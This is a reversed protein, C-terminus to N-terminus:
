RHRREAADLLPLQIANWHGLSATNLNWLWHSYCISDGSGKARFRISQAIRYEEAPPCDELLKVGAKSRQFAQTKDLLFLMDCLGNEIISRVLAHTFTFPPNTAILDFSNPSWSAHDFTDITVDDALKLLGEREEERPEVACIYASPWLERVVKCYVGSGASPDLFSKVKLDHRQKLKTLCQRVVSIPTYNVEFKALRKESPVEAFLTDSM